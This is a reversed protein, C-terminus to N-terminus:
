AVQSITVTVSPSSAGKPRVTITANRVRGQMNPGVQYGFSGNQVFGSNTLVIWARGTDDADLIVELQNDPINTNLQITEEAGFKAISKNADKPNKLSLTPNGPLPGPASAGEQTVVMVLDKASGDKARIVLSGKREPGDNRSANLSLNPSIFFNAPNLWDEGETVVVELQSFTINTKLAYQQMSVGEAPITVNAHSPDKFELIKTPEPQPQQGNGLQNATFVATKKGLTFTFVVPGRKESSTNKDATFTVKDGNKGKTVSAKIWSSSAASLTWEGSSKVIVECTLKDQAGFTYANPSISIEEPTEGGNGGNGGNGDNGGEGGTSPKECSLLAAFMAAFMLIKKM